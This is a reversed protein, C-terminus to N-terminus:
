EAPKHQGEDRDNVDRPVDKGCRELIGNDLPGRHQGTEIHPWNGERQVDQSVLFRARALVLGEYGWLHLCARPEVSWQTAPSAVPTM